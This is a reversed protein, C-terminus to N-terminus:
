TVIFSKWMKVVVPSFMSKRPKGISRSAILNSETSQPVIRNLPAPTPRMEDTCSASEIGHLYKGRAVLRSHQQIEHDGAEKAEKSGHLISQARVVSVTLARSRARSPAAVQVSIARRAIPIARSPLNYVLRSLM